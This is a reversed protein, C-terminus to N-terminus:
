NLLFIAGNLIAAFSVWLIYPILLIAAIKSVRFFMGITLVIATWLLGIVIFGALPSECGFFAFSWLSNLVLQAAFVWLAGKVRPNEPSKRWVLFLSFGMLIYLVGWVPAFVSDPPNFSPKTIGAYWTDVSRITFFSGAIGAAQCIFLSAALKLANRM